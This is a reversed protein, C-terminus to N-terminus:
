GCREASTALDVRRQVEARYARLFVDTGRTARESIEEPSCLDALGFAIMAKMGGEWLSVLDDAARDPDDVTLEGREAAAGIIAALAARVRGPGAAYFRDALGRNARLAPPLTHAMTCIDTGLVVSLIVTGVAILRERLGGDHGPASLAEIMQDSTALVITEFLTEKDRFHSYVTMKSVGAQAAVTEMTVLDFPQSAFLSRAAKIIADRKAIDKPRGPRHAALLLALAVEEL